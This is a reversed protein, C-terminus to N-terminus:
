AVQKRESRKPWLLKEEAEKKKLENRLAETKSYWDRMTSSDLKASAKCQSITVTAVDQTPALAYTASMAVTLIAKLGSFDDVGSNKIREMADLGIEYATAYGQPDYRM